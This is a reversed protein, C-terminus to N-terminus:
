VPQKELLNSESADIRWKPMNPLPGGSGELQNAVEQPPLCPQHDSQSVLAAAM